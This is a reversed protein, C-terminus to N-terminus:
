NLIKWVADWDQKYVDDWEYMIYVYIQSHKNVVTTKKLFANIRISKQTASMTSLSFTSTNGKRITEMRWAAFIPISLHCLSRSYYPYVPRSGLVLSSVTTHLALTAATGLAGPLRRMIFCTSICDTHFILHNDITCFSFYLFPLVM